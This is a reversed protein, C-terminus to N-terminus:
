IRTEGELGDLQTLQATEKVPGREEMSTNKGTM